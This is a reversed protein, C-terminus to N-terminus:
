EFEFEFEMELEDVDEVKIGLVKDFLLKVQEISLNKKSTETAIVEGSVYNVFSLDYYSAKGDKVGRGEGDLVVANFGLPVPEGTKEEEIAHSMLRDVFGMARQDSPSLLSKGTEIDEMLQVWSQSNLPVLDLSVLEAELLDVFETAATARSLDTAQLLTGSRLSSAFVALSQIDHRARFALVSQSIRSMFFARSSISKKLMGEASRNAHWKSLGASVNKQQHTKGAVAHRSRLKATEKATAGAASVFGGAKTTTWIYHYVGGYKRRLVVFDREMFRIPTTKFYIPNAVRKPKQRKRGGSDVFSDVYFATDKYENEFGIQEPAKPTPM